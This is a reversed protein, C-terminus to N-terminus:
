VINEYRNFAVEIETLVDEDFKCSEIRLLGGKSGCVVRWLKYGSGKILGPTKHLPHRPIVKEMREDLMETPYEKDWLYYYAVYVGKYKKM